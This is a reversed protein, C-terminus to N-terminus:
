PTNLRKKPRRMSASRGPLRGGSSSGYGRCAMLTPQRPDLRSCSLLLLGHQRLGVGFTVDPRSRRVPAKRNQLIGDGASAPRVKRVPGARRRSDHVRTRRAFEMKGQFRALARGGRMRQLIRHAPRLGAGQVRPVQGVRRSQRDRYRGRGLELGHSRRLEIRGHGIRLLACYSTCAQSCTGPNPSTYCRSNCQSLCSAADAAKAPLAAFAGLAALVAVILAAIPNM